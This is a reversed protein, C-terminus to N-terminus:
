GHGHRSLKARLTPRREAMLKARLTARRKARLEARLKARLRSRLKARLKARIVHAHRARLMPHIQEYPDVDVVRKPEAIPPVVIAADEGAAVVLVEANM